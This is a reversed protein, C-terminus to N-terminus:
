AFRLRGRLAEGESEAFPGVLSLNLRDEQFLQGALDQVQTPTVAEIGAIVEDIPVLRDRLLLQQGARAAVNMSSELSLLIHGKNYEKVRQLEVDSVPSQRLRDMEHLVGELCSAVQANDVGAYVVLDGADHLTELYSAVTYALARKERIEVFRRSSMGGGLVSDLMQQVYRNPDTYALAPMGLCFQTQETEKAILRFRSGAQDSGAPSYTPPTRPARRDGLQAQVAAVVADHEINGAVSVVTSQPLYHDRLYAQMDAKGIRSVTERTGAVPRGVPQDGWILAEIAETVLDPPSDLVGNIEEIIVARERKVEAAEFRSHLIMDTLVDLALAFHQAPVVASYSTYERDTLANLSGGLGEIAESIEQPTPRRKTGKFLMHEIFHSIGSLEKPEYRAGVKFYILLSASRTHPMATTVVRVGNDLTSIQVGPDAPYVNTL